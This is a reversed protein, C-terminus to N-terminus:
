GNSIEEGVIEDALRRSEVEACLEIAYQAGEEDNLLEGYLEWDHVLAYRKGDAEEWNHERFLESWRDFLVRRGVLGAVDETCDPGCKLIIGTYNAERFQAPRILGAGGPYEDKYEEWEVLVRNHLVTIDRSRSELVFSDAM